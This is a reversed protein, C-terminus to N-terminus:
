GQLARPEPQGLIKPLSVVVERRKEGNESRKFGSIEKERQQEAKISFTYELLGKIWCTGRKKWPKGLAPLCGGPMAQAPLSRRWGPDRPAATSKLLQLPVRPHRAGTHRGSPGPCRDGRGGPHRTATEKAPCPTVPDGCHRRAFSQGGRTHPPTRPCAPPALPVPPVARDGAGPPPLPHECPHM